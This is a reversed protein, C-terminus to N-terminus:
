ENLILGDKILIKRDSKSALIENHTVIVFTCDM